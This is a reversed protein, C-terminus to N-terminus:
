AHAGGKYTDCSRIGGQVVDRTPSKETRRQLACRKIIENYLIKVGETLITVFFQHLDKKRCM